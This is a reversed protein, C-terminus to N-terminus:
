EAEQLFTIPVSYTGCIYQGFLRVIVTKDDIIRVIDAENGAFLDEVIMVKDGVKFRQDDAVEVFDAGHTVLARFKNFQANPIVAPSSKDRGSNMLLRVGQVSRSVMSLTEVDARLFLLNKLVPCQSDKITHGVRKAVEQVAYYTESDGAPVCEGIRREVLEVPEFIRMAYWRKTTDSVSDAVLRYVEDRRADDVHCEGTSNLTTHPPIKEVMSSVTPADVGAERALSIWTLLSVDRTVEAKVGALYHVAGLHKMYEAELDILSMAKTKREMIKFLYDGSDAAVRELVRTLTRTLPVRRPSSKKDAITIYNNLLSKRKVNALQKFTLGGLLVSCIYLDRAPALLAKDCLDLRYLRQVVDSSSLVRGDRVSVPRAPAKVRRDRIGKFATTKEALGLRVARNYLTIFSGIYQNATSLTHGNDALWTKYDATLEANIDSFASVTLSRNNLYKNFSDTFKRFDKSHATLSEREFFKLPQSMMMDDLEKVSDSM